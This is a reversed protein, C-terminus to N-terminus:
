LALRRLYELAAVITPAAFLLAFTVRRGQRWYAKHGVEYTMAIMGFLAFGSLLVSERWTQTWGLVILGLLAYMGAAAAALVIRGVWNGNSM